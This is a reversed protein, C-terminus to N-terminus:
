GKVNGIPRVRVVPNGIQSIKLANVVEDIDKYAFGAEEALGPMSAGKVYIGRERLKQQLVDGRVQRKAKSRSMTRGAGHATSGFSVEMAKATGTLLYSGTEMSGGIIIPQGINQYEQPIENHNPPFGRTAGKRHVMVKKKQGDIVHEEKKAINHAVDYVLDLGLTDEDKKFVESFVQRVNYTIIQRNAFAMNSACSMAAFYKEGEVSKIPVSALEQDLIPIKYKSMASLSSRLYDSAVQHGLGRSGCHIMATVQYPKTIGLVEATQEDYIDGPKVVQIELYHNGSGLTGLQRIGRSKAKDSVTKSDADSMKGQSEIRQIDEERAYGNELCWQAGNELVSDFENRNINALKPDHSLKVGVGAPVKRYLKEVLEKIKPKVDREELTTTLMRVGCNSVVMSNAIFNHSEHDVTFDYVNGDFNHIPEINEIKDWVMGSNNTTSIQSAVFADFHPFLKSPRPNTVVTDYLVREIFRRNVNHSQTITKEIDGIAMGNESFEIIKSKAETRDRIENEKHKLYVIATNALWRKKRNYEFNVKSYFQILNNSDSKIHIRFRFSEEGKSDTYDHKEETISYSIGFEDLLKGYDQLFKKGSELYQERKNIGVAPSYFTYGLNTATSPSSMEAGQFAGIFLRKMWLPIMLLWSPLSWNQKSKNGIPIGLAHLLVLFSRSSVKASHETSHIVKDGYKSAFDIDRYRTYTRSCTWGLEEVDARIDELDEPQAYFWVIGKSTQKDKVSHVILSGDGLVFGALKLLLPFEPSDMRLPLLDRKKLEQIINTTNFNLDLREIDKEDVIIQNSPKEYPIGEFPYIAIEDAETLDKLPIMGEKTWFPHDDTANIEYGAVTRIKYLSKPKVTLFRNISCYDTILNDFDITTLKENQWIDVYKEIEITYGLNSLIKTDGSLCNIDFGVGGPSIVGEEMDMAAVGGIPFGYGAHADPLAIAYKQIGPLTAVNTIQDVVRQEVGQKLVPTLILRAPVRMGKKYSIPIEWTVENIKNMPIDRAAM